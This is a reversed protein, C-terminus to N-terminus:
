PVLLLARKGTTECERRQSSRAPTEREAERLASHGKLGLHQNDSRSDFNGCVCGLAQMM